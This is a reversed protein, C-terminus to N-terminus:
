HIYEELIQFLYQIKQVVRRQEEIPPLPILHNVIKTRSINPQAGGAGKAIFAKRQSLLYYFLYWRDCIQVNVDCACCAQNTACPFKLIGLKGITAGYMAILVSGIPNIHTSSNEIAEETIYEEVSEVIGDTLDGTKLWPINGHQYYEEHSRSPTGGAKWRGINGLQIWKWKKPIDFPVDDPASGIQTVEPESELQPVLKGQIAEQLISNKLKNAFSGKLLEVLQQEKGYVEVVSRIENLKDIIRQQEGLPPIPIPMTKLIKLYIGKQATGSSRDAMWELLTPSTLMLALFESRLFNKPKMVCVSRQLMFKLADDPVVATRGITGVITLLVDGSEIHVKRDEIVWQEETTWRTVAQTDIIGDHVNKASLVPIGVGSNPPPNHSGDSIQLLVDNLSMWLWKAPLSFPVDEPAKGIQVVVPESELQPVLKGQIAEQLISAWLQEAKM